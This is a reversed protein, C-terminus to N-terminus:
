RRESVASLWCSVGATPRQPKGKNRRLPFVSAMHGFLFPPTILSQVKNAFHPLRSVPIEVRSRCSTLFFLAATMAVAGLLCLVFIKHQKRRASQAEKRELEKKEFSRM